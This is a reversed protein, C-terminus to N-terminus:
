SEALFLREKKFKTKYNSESCKQTYFSVNANVRFKEDCRDCVYTESLNMSNGMYELLKGTMHEKSIDRPKGLFSNPYYIEAPLYECGCNPCKILKERHKKM